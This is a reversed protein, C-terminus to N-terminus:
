VGDREEASALHAERNVTTESRERDVFSGITEVDPWDFLRVDRSLRNCAGVWREATGATEARPPTSSPYGGGEARDCTPM